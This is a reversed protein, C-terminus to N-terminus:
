QQQQRVRQREKRLGDLGPMQKEANINTRSSRANGSNDTRRVSSGGGGGPPLHIVAIGHFLKRLGGVLPLLHDSLEVAVGPVRHSSSLLM